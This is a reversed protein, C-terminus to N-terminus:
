RTRLRISARATPRARRRGGAGDNATVTITCSQAEGTLNAPATWTAAQQNATAGFSGSGGLAAPCSASWAYAVTHAPLSDTATATVAVAGGSAVPNPNGGPPTTITLTHAISNVGQSYSASATKGGAGDNVTVTLTCTQVDGTLNAPATWTAAQQGATAGFSGNGGLAAPCSATWAYAVIHSPLSDTATATVAVAGGSAVPNPNGGPLTTITLTHAVSTVGQGYSATATKGGAGDNVTVTLTCTQVDGTVNAPATWTAAQQGGTAGFSGNGGLAAPCSATWAYAVVHAPLSDTATATVAVAGGSAVPNPNGGPPTTITLTHAISNVGQTYFASATKGGAGDNVTVTITCTQVDGTLNAPATWTAAQQGGTAGFSGNGGLAAPCVATWAYAVTHAPLSDAATATVAVAAGSAVPNPNGGPLTTITLTHPISNVGQTYSATASQGFAGDDVTVAITCNQLSGTLNAPATWTANRLNATSGFSGNGGLASACTATWAYNLPHNLSDNATVTVAVAQASSAPNPTGSPSTTISFTHPVSHLGQSYSASATKGGAGDNVTVTITCAQVEGTLNAPATWTAGQQGATAGFSGNGGLAAPCVATWAYAVTHSPLSDVATATVAVAGGSTVPNPNGGPPTTITLTHPISNIGQSYSANATLGGTGDNVNVTITCSQVEGTVNAPATWTAAQQGATTGFSGNGGLAAPCVATWAYAVTHAPLSDTATATVAVAAGSAVPNPTGGPLTSITLTHGISNVGQVYSANATLGGTGDNVNVTITCSQAEGTLNAPATWTANQQNATAGFSGNGGLAAPCVATWAYAVTHAPLSDTATATVAVAAGSNVPNPNGGPLTTITLTHPISNVGQSYSANVTLGGTGDNVNVTITCSQVEGTLNAPATWTAAQQNATTGFSGNGGLAAPCVATWAYNVTHSPLSDTATATVAVAGGSAVPNPTGGPLTTFTLTHPISTVVQGYSANATLGGTGDNVNVRITCTQGEGTLNAPATWTANQQNATAGFSGNGGLAAPCSATWAYAVTHSPLSDAATATVAVAGGSAVPNPNGGPLTTFTLTHAISNVGQVYSATATLGGTGDNVTVTITCGQVDGTLNAPATWTANRQGAAAGFSGNGGLAAPCVATWAYAVTHAPLSDTATATVAVAAGSAVPNPNGSPQTTITLTHPVSNVGQAYSASATKGGIGDNVTVTITCSQAEGTTNAPATWTAHQQGATAGFSGNGGLAAPCSATWAYSVTHAPLSDSATATVAVAAGSAVPNPNGSPQTTITLTHPISNVGQSYSASATKGGTGDNVTVTVTCSQVEGTLNAPATWTANQQNATAGFSGSGGLAAPCTAAWAYNVTHSPISDVASATVAVAGASDVPNPTGSPPTTITLTHVVANVIQSYSASATKGGAGDNATVTITCIQQVSTFNVPATWTVNQTGPDFGFSGNAGLVPPCDAAWSYAVTHAPLSDTATATVVAVGGSAVPNPNGAPPTTITLTHPVSNVGQAYSATATRGGAGDNATVTITCTQVEGTVNAPATWTANRQAATAGFDGNNGLAEPCSATWAYNVSHTPFSDTATATVAVAGGSAVPNPTGGPLTTITLTHPVPNVGQTYSANATKGGAGDSAGVTITCSQLAGTLNTPSTWTAHQQNATGGFNGNGGLTPSCEAVWAYSVTHAPLSDTATATMAVAAGSGVPNPTGGPLTTFTLTHPISNVGQGYSADATLGGTGDNVTVTITCIQVGGTLNAPATWTANRQGATAGFSGNGGLAAPCTAAWAYGVDHGYSDAAAASVAVAGGSGVANPTGEPLATFTLTHPFPDVKQDLVATASLGFGDTVVVTIACSQQLGTMNSPPTWTPTRGTASPTFTGNGPLGPCGSTWQYTLPHSYTDTATVSLAVPGPPMVPNPTGSPPTTITLVDNFPGVQHAYQVTTSVGRDDSIEVSVTCSALNPTPNIPATWTPSPLTRDNFTGRVGVGLSPCSNRWDYTLPHGLSDAAVVQLNATRGSGVPNPAGSPGGTVTIIDPGDIFLSLDYFAPYGNLSDVEIVYTAGPTVAAYVTESDDDVVGVGGPVLFGSADKLYLDLDSAAEWFRIHIEVSGSGAPVVFQYRDIGNWVREKLTVPGTPTGLNMSTGDDGVVPVNLRFLRGDHERESGPTSSGRHVYPYIGVLSGLPLSGPIGAFITPSWTTSTTTANPPCALEQVTGPAGSATLTCSYVTEFAGPNLATPAYKRIALTIPQGVTHSEIPVYAKITFASLSLNLVRPQVELVARITDFTEDYTLPAGIGGYEAKVGQTFSAMATLGGPGDAATVTISCSQLADTLNAPATWTATQDGATVGFSGNGGLAAPCSAMWAYGVVHGPDSDTAVATVTVAGASNVPNPTGNPLTTITLTHQAFGASSLGFVGCLVMWALRKM